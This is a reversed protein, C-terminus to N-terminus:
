GVPGCAGGNRKRKMMARVFAFLAVAGVAGFYLWV